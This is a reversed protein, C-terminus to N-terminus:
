LRRFFGTTDINRAIGVVGVSDDKASVDEINQKINLEEGDANIIGVLLNSKGSLTVRKINQGTHECHIKSQAEECMQRYQYLLNRQQKINDILELRSQENEQGQDNSTSALQELQTETVAIQEDVIKGQQKIEKEKGALMMVKIESTTQMQRCSNLSHGPLTLRPNGHDLEGLCPPFVYLISTNLAMSITAKSTSLQARFSNTKAEGLYGARVRDWWFTKDETSHKMWNNLITNFEICLNDCSQVASQLTGDQINAKLENSLQSDHLAKDLSRFVADAAKLDEKLNAIAAPAGQIAEIFQLLKQASKIAAVTIGTVAAAISLPDAM